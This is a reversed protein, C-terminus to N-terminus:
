VYVGESVSKAIDVHLANLEERVAGTDVDTDTDIHGDLPSAPAICMCRELLGLLEEWQHHEYLEELDWQM